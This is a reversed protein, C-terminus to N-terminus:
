QGLLAFFADLGTTTGTGPNITVNAAPMNSFYIDGPALGSLRTGYGYVLEVDSTITHDATDASNDVVVSSPVGYSTDLSINGLIDSLTSGTPTPGGITSPTDLNVSSNLGSLTAGTHTPEGITVQSQWDLVLQLTTGAAVQEVKITSPAYIGFYVRVFSMSDFVIPAMNSRVIESSTFDYNQPAPNYFDGLDLFTSGPGAAAAGHLDLSGQVGDLTGNIDQVYITDNGATAYINTTMGAATGLVRFTDDGPGGNVDLRGV